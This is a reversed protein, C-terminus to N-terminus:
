GISSFFVEQSKVGKAAWGGKRFPVVAACEPAAIM